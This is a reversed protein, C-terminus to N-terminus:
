RLERCRRRRDAREREAEAPERERDDDRHLLKRAAQDREGAHRDRQGRRPVADQARSRDADGAQRDAREPEDGRDHQQRAVAQELLRQDGAREHQAAAQARAAKSTRVGSGRPGRRLPRDQEEVGLGAAALRLM